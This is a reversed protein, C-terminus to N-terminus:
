NSRKRLLPFIYSSNSISSEKINPTQEFNKFEIDIKKFSNYIPLVALSVAFLSIVMHVTKSIKGQPVLMEILTCSISILCLILTYKKIEEM